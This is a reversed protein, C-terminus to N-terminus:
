DATADELSPSIGTADPYSGVGTNNRAGISGVSNSGGESFTLISGMWWGGLVMSALGGGSLFVKDRGFPM